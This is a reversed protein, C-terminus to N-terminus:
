GSRRAPTTGRSRTRTSPAAIPQDNRYLQLPRDIQVWPPIMDNSYLLGFYDDFGQSTPLYAPDLHGLHWKGIMHTQYGAAGLAEALTHTEPYM